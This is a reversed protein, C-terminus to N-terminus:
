FSCFDVNKVLLFAPRFGCYTFTGDKDGGSIENGAYVGIKSYGEVSHYCYAIYDDGNNCTNGDNAGLTFVSATPVTSWPSGQDSKANDLNLVLYDVSGDIM